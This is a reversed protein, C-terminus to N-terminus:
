ALGSKEVALADTTKKKLHSNQANNSSIIVGGPNQGSILNGINGLPSL